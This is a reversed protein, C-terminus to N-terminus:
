RRVVVRASGVNGSGDVARLSITHEGAAALPLDLAYTEHPSDAIGDEPFVAHWDGGDVSVDARRVMGSADDVNFRVRVRGEPTVQADGSARVVPPTSDVDVPESVREGTLAQGLSNDPADTAVVKFVYRGDGLTASDTSYFNDRLNEKLTHFTNENVSRYYVSYELSDGNRDEAQWQLSIAGRQFMRRPPIQVQPGILSPDLGSTEINPDVPIQVAPQLSVGVPLVQIQTVEPAVNRPLYALSVDEVRAETNPTSHLVARWQIFRARPSAVQAGSPDRYAASWDSWTTNPRETNGTRTQLEVQGRGRWWVRGWSAVFKADRVPSEYTGEAVVDDAFRFLKGQNSSAALIERGRVVLSSIQDESSQVLLTDRGDDTVSYIRGKDSTGILVGAGRPSSVVSFATVTTSSWLVDSGGDPAIRFVASRANQLDNRSRTQAQPQSSVTTVQAGDDITVTGTVTGGSSSTSVSQTTQPTAAPRPGTAADSLALAYISGDAAPALAHIERLPSDYLAFAKGDAGVRLVLGGPDTGAILNGRSDVALSIIHTENTDVLLSDEPKAGASRVRYLKGKDGTGVALSGDSMVALSWIYKDPPDFYVDAKGDQTIRYVKGEPSTGAYLAGDRGVVLATVDLEASDYLLSGKGDTGVRFIKGDHGTGLYVNGATDAASSWVYAQETDFLKTFQPALMLAGTDTVSVGHSEGALLDSRSDTEWVVPGGAQTKLAPLLALASSLILLQLTRLAHQRNIM